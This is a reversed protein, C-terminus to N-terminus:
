APRPENAIANAQRCAADVKQVSTPQKVISRLTPESAGWKNMATEIVLLKYIAQGYTKEMCVQYRLYRAFMVEDQPAAVASQSTLSLVGLLAALVLRLDM